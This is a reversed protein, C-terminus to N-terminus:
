GMPMVKMEWTMDAEKSKMSATGEQVGELCGRMVSRIIAKDAKKAYKNRGVVAELHEM